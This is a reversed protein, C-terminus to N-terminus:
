QFLSLQSAATKTRKGKGADIYYVATEKYRSAVIIETSGCQSKFLTHVLDPDNNDASLHSLFLHSLQPPRESVFLGFAQHNSLHGNGGSIRSKLHHPYRGNQLMAEDYNAELFAAHCQKFYFTLQDCVKGIDTFVGIRIQNHEIIFSHADAADHYKPFATIRLDGINIIEYKTFSVVHQPKLILRSHLLTKPTIYVPLGYKTSLVAVGRIHDGHEHSVFIAKVKKIDLDLRKMRKETERCSLGADVLIAEEENGIYYCNGNSGSNLSTIFLSM